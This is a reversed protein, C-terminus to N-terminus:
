ARLAMTTPALGVLAFPIGWDNSQMFDPNQCPIGRSVLLPRLQVASLKGRAVDLPGRRCPPHVSKDVMCPPPPVSKDVMVPLPTSM